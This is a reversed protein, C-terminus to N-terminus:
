EEEGEAALEFTSMAGGTPAALSYWLFFVSGKWCLCGPRGEVGEGFEPCIM